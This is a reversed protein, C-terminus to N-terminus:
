EENLVSVEVDRIPVFLAAMFTSAQAKLQTTSHYLAESTVVGTLAALGVLRTRTRHTLPRYFLLLGPTVYRNMTEQDAHEARGLQSFM